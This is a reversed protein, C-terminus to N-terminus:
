EKDTAYDAKILCSVANGLHQEDDFAAYPVILVGKDPAGLTIILGNGSTVYRAPRALAFSYRRVVPPQPADDDPEADLSPFTVEAEIKGDGFTLTHPVVNVFGEPRLGYNFYLMAAVMPLIIMVLMLAVVIWRLDVVIAAVAAAVVAVALLGLPLRAQCMAMTMIYRGHPIRFSATTVM